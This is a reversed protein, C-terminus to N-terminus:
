SATLYRRAPKSQVRQESPRSLAEAVAFSLATAASIVRTKSSLFDEPVDWPPSVACVLRVIGSSVLDVGSPGQFSILYGFIVPLIITPVAWAAILIYLEKSLFIAAPPHSLGFSFPSSSGLPPITIQRM